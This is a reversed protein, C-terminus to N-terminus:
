ETSSARISVLRAPRAGRGGCGKRITKGPPVEWLGRNLNDSYCKKILGQRGWDYVAIQSINFRQAVERLDVKRALAWLSMADATAYGFREDLRRMCHDIEPRNGQPDRFLSVIKSLESM